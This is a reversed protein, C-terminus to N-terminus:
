TTEIEQQEKVDTKYTGKKKMRNINKKKVNVWHSEDEKSLGEPIIIDDGTRTVTGTHTKAEESSIRKQETKGTEENVVDKFIGTKKTPSQNGLGYFGSGKMKFPTEHSGAM